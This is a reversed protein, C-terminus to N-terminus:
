VEDRDGERDEMWKNEKDIWDKRSEVITDGLLDYYIIKEVGANLLIRRCGQCPGSRQGGTVGLYCITGITSVGLRAANLVANAEAHVAPCNIYSTYHPENKIDKLCALEKGCNHAKRVSGNYGTSLINDDKVLVAGFKRRTCSSRKSVNTAIELYYDDKSKGNM